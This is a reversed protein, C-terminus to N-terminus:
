RCNWLWADIESRSVHQEIEQRTNRILYDGDLLTQRFLNAIGGAPLNTVCLRLFESLERGIAIIELRELPNSRTSELTTKLHNGAQVNPKAPQSRIVNLV